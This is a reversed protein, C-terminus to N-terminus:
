EMMDLIIKEGVKGNLSDKLANLCENEDFISVLKHKPLSIKGALFMSELYNYMDKLEPADTHEEIWKSFWFGRYIIDKFILSSTSALVPKLSMGGYTVHTGRHELCKSIEASSTGGVCNLALRAKPLTKNHFEKASRLESETWVYNAGISKLYEKLKDIDERDRVINVTRLGMDKAIQIVAQGVASNAGNQIVIDGKKMDPVFDTLIRLATGPNIRLVSLGMIMHSSDDAKVSVKDFELQTKLTVKDFNSANTKIHTSWVGNGDPMLKPYVLDGIKLRKVNGGVKIVKGIGETGGIAPFEKPRIPYIGQITNIHAPNIPAALMRVIVTDSETQEVIPDDFHEHKIVKAPEGFEYYALRSAYRQYNISIGVTSSTPLKKLLHKKVEFCSPVGSSYRIVNKKLKSSRKCLLSHHVCKGASQNIFLHTIATYSKNLM